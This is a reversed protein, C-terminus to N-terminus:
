KNYKNHKNLTNFQKKATITQETEQKNWKITKEKHHNVGKTKIANNKTTQKTQKQKTNTTIIVGKQQNM